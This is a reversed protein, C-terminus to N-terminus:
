HGFYEEKNRFEKKNGSFVKLRATGGQTEQFYFLNKRFYRGSGYQRCVM